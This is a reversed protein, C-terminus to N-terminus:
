YETSDDGFSIHNSSIVRSQSLLRRGAHSPAAGSGGASAAGSGHAPSDGRGGVSGVLAIFM